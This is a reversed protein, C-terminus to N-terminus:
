GQPDAGRETARRALDAMDVRVFLAEAEATLVGGAHCTARSQIRRGSAHHVWARLILETDLPTMNRYRVHLTGTLGTPGEILSQTSGLVDDFMGAVYGGHVGNPPGEYLRGLTVRAEVIASGDAREVMTTVLPPALPNATGRYLSRGGYRRRQIRAERGDRIAGEFLEGEYWRPRPPGDLLELMERAHATAQAVRDEDARVAQFRAIVARLADALEDDATM